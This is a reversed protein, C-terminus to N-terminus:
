LSIVPSCAQVSGDFLWIATAAPGERPSGDKLRVGLELALRSIEDLQVPDVDSTREALAVMVKALTTSARAGVQKVQGFDILGVRGDDLIFINGPHPDAHFFGGELITVGFAETLSTLLQRGFLQAEAGEADIGRAEMAAVARSLPEGKLYDMVLVRKTVLGAVPRPTVIPAICTAGTEPDTALTRGIREMAAAEKVFDFEDALQVELESFVTYYDVPIAEFGRVSKALAKLAAVDGLLKAEIAPRQVKVAVVTGGYAPMLVARHIQAVSAAGLPERDFEAFVSEFPEDDHLLEQEVVARVLAYDMPDVLDTLGSLRDTYQKPFLDQRTAIIQGTKTYFGKLENVVDSFIKSGQEHEEEWLVECAEEDLCEELVRERFRLKFYLGFYSAVIPLARSAFTLGRQLQEVTTAESPFEQTALAGAPEAEEPEAATSPASLFVAARPTATQHPCGQLV